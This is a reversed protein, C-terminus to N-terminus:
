VMLLITDIRYAKKSLSITLPITTLYTFIGILKYQKIIQALHQHQVKEYPMHYVIIIVIIIM